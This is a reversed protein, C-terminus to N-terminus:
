HLESAAFFISRPESPPLRRRGLHTFSGHQQRIRHHRHPIAIDLPYNAVPRALRARLVHPPSSRHSSNSAGDRWALSYAALALGACGCVSARTDVVYRQGLDGSLPPFSRVKRVMADLRRLPSARMEKPEAMWEKISALIAKAKEDKEFHERVPDLMRNVANALGKKLDPDRPLPFPTVSDPSHTPVAIISSGSPSYGRFKRTALIPARASEGEFSEQLTGDMARAFQTRWSLKRLPDRMSLRRSARGRPPAHWTELGPSACWSRLSQRRPLGREHECFGLFDHWWSHLHRRATCLSHAPYLGLLPEEVQGRCSADIGTRAFPRSALPPSHVLAVGGQATTSQHRSLIPTGRECLPRHPSGVEASVTQLSGDESKPCYANMIKRDVESSPDEMFIASDKNSKSM